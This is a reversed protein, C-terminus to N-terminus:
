KQYITTCTTSYYFTYVFMFDTETETKMKTGDKELWKETPSRVFKGISMINICITREFIRTSREDNKM